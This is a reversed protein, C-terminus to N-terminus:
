DDILTKIERLEDTCDEASWDVELLRMIAARHSKSHLCSRGVTHMASISEGHELANRVQNARNIVTEPMGAAKACPIGQSSTAVGLRLKFLPLMEEDRSSGETDSHFAMNFVEISQRQTQNLIEEQLVETFHLVFIAKAKNTVFHSIVSGLLAIGDIPATGKGFEDILCLSRSTHSILMRSVQNLDLAFSSQNYQVTETSTIRTLIRDCIGIIAKECPVFSGIHALYVIM